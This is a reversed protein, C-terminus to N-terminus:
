AEDVSTLDVAYGFRTRGLGLLERLADRDSAGRLVLKRRGRTTDIRLYRGRRILTWLFMVGIVGPFLTAILLKLRLQLEGAAFALIMWITIVATGGLFIATAIAVAVPRECTFGHDVAIREISARPLFVVRHGEATRESIGDGGIEISGLRLSAQGAGAHGPGQEPGAV